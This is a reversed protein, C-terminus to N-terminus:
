LLTLEELNPISFIVQKGALFATNIQGATKDCTGTEDVNVIFVSGSDAAVAIGQEIKNLKETTILDGNTWNTPNYSM